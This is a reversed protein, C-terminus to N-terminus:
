KWEWEEELHYNVKLHDALETFQARIEAVNQLKDKPLILTQGDELIIFIAYAIEYFEKVASSPVISEYLDDKVKLQDQDFEFKVQISQKDGYKDQIIGKYHKIYYRSEWKPYIFYYTVACISLFLLPIYDNSILSILGLFIFLIPSTIRSKRRKKNIRESKSAIFLQTILEDNQDITYNITTM